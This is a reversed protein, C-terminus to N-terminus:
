LLAKKWYLSFIVLDAASPDGTMACPDPCPLTNGNRYVQIGEPCWGTLESPNFDTM